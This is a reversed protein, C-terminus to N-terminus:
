PFKFIDYHWSENEVATRSNAVLYILLNFNIIKIYVSNEAVSKVRNMVIGNLFYPFSFGIVIGFLQINQFKPLSSSNELFSVYSGFGAIAGVMVLGYIMALLHSKFVRATAAFVQMREVNNGVMKSLRVIIMSNNALSSVAFISVIPIINSILGIELIGIGFYGNFLKFGIFDFLGFIVLTLPFFFNNFIQTRILNFGPKNRNADSLSLSDGLYNNSFYEFSLTLIKELLLGLFLCLFIYKKGTIFAIPTFFVLIIM